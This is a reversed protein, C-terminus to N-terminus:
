KGIFPKMLTPAECEFLLRAGTVPHDFGLSIAHLAIRNRPWRDHIAKKRSYRPDGLVPHGYDAFHVRIQNRRGTELRVEVVTMDRLEKQVRYHTIALKGRSGQRTSFQDL